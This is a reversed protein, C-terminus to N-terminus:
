VYSLVWQIQEEVPMGRMKAKRYLKYVTVFRSVKSPTRDFIQPKAVELSVAEGEARVAVQESLTTIQEQLQRIITSYNPQQSIEYLSVPTLPPPIPM